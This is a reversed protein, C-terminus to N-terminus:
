RGRFNIIIKIIRSLLLLSLYHTRSRPVSQKYCSPRGSVSIVLKFLSQKHVHRKEKINLHAQICLVLIYMCIYVCAYIHKYMRTKEYICTKYYLAAHVYTYVLKNMFVNM